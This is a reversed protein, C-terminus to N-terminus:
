KLRLYKLSDKISVADSLELCFIPPRPLARLKDLLAPMDLLGESFPLHVDILGNTNHLHTLVLFPSVAEIWTEMPLKSYVCAHAVDLCSRLHPSNIGKLV